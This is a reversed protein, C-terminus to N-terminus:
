ELTWTGLITVFLYTEKEIYKLGSWQSMSPLYPELFFGTKLFTSQAKLWWQLMRGVLM